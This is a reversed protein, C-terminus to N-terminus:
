VASHIETHSQMVSVIVLANIMVTRAAGDIGSGRIISSDESGDAEAAANWSLLWRVEEAPARACVCVYIYIYIYIYSNTQLKIFRM